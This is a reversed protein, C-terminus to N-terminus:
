QTLEPFPLFPAPPVTHPSLEKEMWVIDHWNGHKFGSAHLHATTKYGFHEHFAISNPNPYTICAYLNCVHQRLLLNELARYLASGVGRRKKDQRVYISTEASWGYAARSKFASAYTYGLIVGDEEATLYPYKKLTNGIREAFAKETPVDYEFTISTDTVYPAYIGLLEPADELVATRINM